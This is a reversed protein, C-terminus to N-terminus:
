QHCPGDTRHTGPLSPDGCVCTGCIDNIAAQSLTLGHTFVNPRMSSKVATEEDRYVRAQRYVEAEGKILLHDAANIYGEAFSKPSHQEAPEATARAAKAAHHIADRAKRVDGATIAVGSDNFIVVDDELDQYAPFGDQPGGLAAFPQLADVLEKTM